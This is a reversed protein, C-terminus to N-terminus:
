TATLAQYRGRPLFFAGGLAVASLAILADAADHLGAVPGHTLASQTFMTVIVAIGVSGAIRQWISFLTNADALRADDVGHLM